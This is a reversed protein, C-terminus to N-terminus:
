RYEEGVTPMKAEDPLLTVRSLAQTVHERVGHWRHYATQLKVPSDLVDRLWTQNTYMRINRLSKKDNQKDINALM